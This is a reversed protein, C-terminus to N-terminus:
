HLHHQLSADFPSSFRAAVVVSRRSGLGPSFFELSGRWVFACTRGGGLVLVEFGVVLCGLLSGGSKLFEVRALYM